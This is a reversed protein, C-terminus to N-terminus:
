AYNLSAPFVERHGLIRTITDEITENQKRFLQSGAISYNHRLAKVNVFGMKKVANNFVRSYRSNIQNETLEEITPQKKEKAILNLLRRLERLYKKVLSDTMPPIIHGEIAKDNGKLLGSFLVKDGRKSIKLTKILETFRRGTALGLLALIHYARVQREDQNRAVEYNRKELKKMLEKIQDQIRKPDIKQSKSEGARVSERYERKVEEDKAKVPAYVNDITFAEEAIARYKGGEENIIKKFKVLNNRIASPSYMFFIAYSYDKYLAQVEEVSSNKVENYRERFQKLIDVLRSVKYVTEFVERRQKAIDDHKTARKKDAM